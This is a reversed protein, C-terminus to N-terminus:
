YGFVLYPLQKTDASKTPIPKRSSFFAAATSVGGLILSFLVGMVLLVLMVLVGEFDYCILRFYLGCNTLTGALLRTHHQRNFLNRM